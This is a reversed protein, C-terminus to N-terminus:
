ISHPFQDQLAHIFQGHANGLFVAFNPCFGLSIHELCFLARLQGGLYRGQHHTLGNHVGGAPVIGHFVSLRQAHKGANHRYVERGHDRKAPHCGGTNGGAVGQYQFGSGQGGLGGHEKSLQVLVCAHRVTDDIHDGARAILDVGNQLVRINLANGKNAGGRHTQFDIFFGSGVALAALGQALGLVM